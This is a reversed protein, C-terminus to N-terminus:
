SCFVMSNNNSSEKINEIIRVVELGDQGSISPITSTEVSLFFSKIEEKYTYDNELKSSHLEDWQTGSKKFFMVQGNIGDWLLTGKEGIVFCKRTPDHRIFDVNLSATLLTGNNEDFGLIVHASDEVDIDLDSQKSVHSKVWNIKGFIWLLYDIEHSLELLVGGGLKKQASVEDRYNSESRWSPLYQGVEARISLIKGAKESDIQKKFEILSPLFRLNYGTMLTVNNQYCFDILEQVGKSSDSIPKEILLNIGRSALIKAIEIHKSAPNSIIAVQPNLAIAEIVSTVCKHLGLAEIDDSNCQKQRLVIIDINPFSSKIHGAHRRGVSGLGVILVTKILSSM